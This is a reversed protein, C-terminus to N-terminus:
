FWGGSKKKSRRDAAEQAVAQQRESELVNVDAAAREIAGSWIKGAAREAAPSSKLRTAKALAFGALGALKAQDGVPLATSDQDQLRELKAKAAAIERDIKRTNM